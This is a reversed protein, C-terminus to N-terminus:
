YFSGETSETDKRPEGLRGPPQAGVGASQARHQELGAILKDLGAQGRHRKLTIKMDAWWARGNKRILRLWTRCECDFRHQESSDTM